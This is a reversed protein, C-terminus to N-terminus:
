LDQVQVEDITPQGYSEVPDSVQTVAADNLDIYSSYTGHTINIREPNNSDISIPEQQKVTVSMTISSALEMQLHKLVGEAIASFIMRREEAGLQPLDEPLNRARRYEAWRDQFADEIAQTMSDAEGNRGVKLTVKM